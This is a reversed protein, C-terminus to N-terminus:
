LLPCSIKDHKIDWPSSIGILPIYTVLLIKINYTM